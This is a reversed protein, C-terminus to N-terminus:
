IQKGEFEENIRDLVALSAYYVTEYNMFHLISEDWFFNIIAPFEDDSKWFQFIVKMFDFVSIEYAVDGKNFPQGKLKECAIKLREPEKDFEKVGKTFFGEGLSHSSSTYQLKNLSKIDVYNGKPLNVDGMTSLVDYITGLANFEREEVLEKGNKKYIKGDKRSLSYEKLLFTFYIYEEDSKLSYNKVIEEQDYDLFKVRMNEAMIDYNSKMSFEKNNKYYLKMDKKIWTMIVDVLYEQQKQGLCTGPKFTHWKRICERCCTATAHQAIFVPHGKMPTQKGDNAIFAPAQRKLIFDKAHEKITELGKKEIYKVDEEKLHFSNRFKSNDLRTFLRDFWEERTM